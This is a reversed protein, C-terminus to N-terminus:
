AEGCANWLCTTGGVQGAQINTLASGERGGPFGYVWHLLTAEVAFAEAPTDFRGVVRAIPTEGRAKIELIKLHKEKEAGGVTDALRDAEIAHQEIRRGTGKGVYFVSKDPPASPDRIEYVYYPKLELLTEEDAPIDHPM